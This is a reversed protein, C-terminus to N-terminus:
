SVADTVMICGNWGHSQNKKSRNSRDHDAEHQGRNEAAGYGM